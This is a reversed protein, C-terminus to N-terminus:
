YLSTYKGKHPMKWFAEAATTPERPPPVLGGVLTTAAHAPAPAGRGWGGHLAVGYVTGGHREVGEFAGGGLKVVGRKKCSIQSLHKRPVSNLSVCCLKTVQFSPFSFNPLTYPWSVCESM